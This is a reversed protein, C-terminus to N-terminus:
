RIRFRARRPDGAGVTNSLVVTARYRGRVLRRSRVRVTTKGRAIAVSRRAVVVWRCRRRACRRRQITVKATAARDSRIVVTATRVCRRRSGRCRKPRVKVRLSRIRPLAVGATAQFPPAAVPCGDAGTGPVTPCRDLLLSLGDGDGDSAFLRRLAAGANARGGTVSLGALWPRPDVTGLILDKVEQSSLWPASALLLAAEGSVHPTAMSSGDEFGYNDGPSTSMIDVGPAFLDVSTAGYNSFSARQDDADSAGVCVVNPRPANCPMVTRADITENGSAVVYLTSPHAGIAGTVTQSPNGGMGGFSANVVRLGVDGAYDFAQAIWSEFAGGGSDIARLPLVKAAPAVGVVGIVNNAQAAITGSVHTGHGLLDSVDGPGAGPVFNRGGPAIQGALDDHGLDIGSDVVGVTQGAGLSFSWADLLDIDDGPTGGTQGTNFLGWMSPWLPDNPPALVRMRRDPEAYVVDPDANLEALAHDADQAPVTLVETQPLRLVDVLSAGVGARLDARQAAGLGPDRKVIIREPSQAFSATPLWAVVALACVIPLQAIRRPLARGPMAGLNILGM